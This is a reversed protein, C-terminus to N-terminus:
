CFETGMSVSEKTQWIQSVIRAIGNWAMVKKIPLIETEANNIIPFIELRIPFQVVSESTGSNQNLQVIKM